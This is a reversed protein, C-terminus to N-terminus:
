PINMYKHTQLSISWEPHQKVFEIVLPLMEKERSWEPQFYLRCDKNVKEAHTLGWALDSPHYVVVKLENAYQYVSDVPKKFKKPSFCIWDFEGSLPWAGSTEIYTEAPIKKLAATLTDLNHMLPEGGTIVVRTAGASRVMEAMAEVPVLPHREM